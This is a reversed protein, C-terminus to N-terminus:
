DPYSSSVLGLFGLTSQALLNGGLGISVLVILPALANPLVHRFIIRRDSAGLARAAEVYMHQRASIVVSRVIRGGAPITLIALALFVVIIRTGFVAVIALLLVLNPFAQFTDTIRQMVLDVKGMFYGSVLGWMSGAFSGIVVSFVSVSLSLRSAWVIRSFVDRGANDTGFWHQSNPPQFPFAILTENPGYPAILPAFIAMLWFGIIMFLSVAGLPKRKAIIGLSVYWPRKPRLGAFGEALASEQSLAEERRM